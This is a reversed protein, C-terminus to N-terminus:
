LQTLLYAGAGGVALGLAGLVKGAQRDFGRRLAIGGFVGGFHLAATTLLFGAAYSAFGSSAPAEAGHALGHLSAAVAILGLGAGVPWARTAAVLMLGFVVVSASIAVELHPVGVGSAGLAASAVLAAMFTAPGWWAKGAPLAFVSWLGVAVMALLHDAGLPHDLGAFFGHTGHGTHAAASGALAALTTAVALRRILTTM